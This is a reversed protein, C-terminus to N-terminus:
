SFHVFYTCYCFCYNEKEDQIVECVNLVGYTIKYTSAKIHIFRYLNKKVFIIVVTNYCEYISTAVRCFYFARWLAQLKNVFNFFIEFSINKCRRESTGFRCVLARGEPEPLTGPM